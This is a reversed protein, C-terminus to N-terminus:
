RRIASCLPCECRNSALVREVAIRATESLEAFPTSGLEYDDGAEEIQWEVERLSAIGIRKGDVFFLPSESPTTREPDLKFGAEHLAHEVSPQVVGLAVRLWHKALASPWKVSHYFVFAISTANEEYSILSDEGFDIWNAAHQAFPNEEGLIDRWARVVLDIVTDKLDPVRGPSGAAQIRITLGFAGM